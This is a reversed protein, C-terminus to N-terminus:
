VTRLSEGLTANLAAGLLVVYCSVWFWLMVGALAALPGYTLDFDALKTVYFSLGASASLWMPTAVFTGPWVFRNADQPHTPGFRYLAAIALGVFLVLLALSAGHILGRARPTFGLFHLVGPLAILLAMALLASLMAGLTMLLGVCQFRLMSRREGGYLHEVSAILAKTGTAASWLAVGLGIWVSWALQIPAHQVLVQARRAILVYAEPPLVDRLILLQEVVADPRFVLGYISLLASLAPFLALTAYFACGAAILSARTHQARQFSLWIKRWVPMARGGFAVSSSLM